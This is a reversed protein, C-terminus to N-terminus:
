IFQTKLGELLGCARLARQFRLCSECTGCWKVGDLYCPWLKEFPLGLGQAVSVIEKKNLTSTFCHARVRNATSYSFSLTLAELFEVSNDPFTQAEELNFGPIILDAGLSEAYGAAINMFIGNRNPVWVASASRMSQGHDEINISDGQPVDISHDILSSRGFEKVWPISIVKHTLGLHDCLSQSAKREKVAVRQGYDFTLALLVDTKQHAIFLNTASDLGGSLLVVSKM